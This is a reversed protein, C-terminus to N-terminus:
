PYLLLPLTSRAEMYKQVRGLAVSANIVNTLQEPLM